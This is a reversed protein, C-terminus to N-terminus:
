RINKIKIHGRSFNWELLSKCARLFIRIEVFLASSLWIFRLMSRKCVLVFYRTSFEDMYSHHLSFFIGRVIRGAERLRIHSFFSAECLIYLGSARIYSFAGWREERRGRFLFSRERFLLFFPRAKNFGLKMYVDIDTHTHRQLNLLLPEYLLMLGPGLSGPRTRRWRGRCCCCCCSTIPLHRHYLGAATREAEYIYEEEDKRWSFSLSERSLLLLYIYICQVGRWRLM